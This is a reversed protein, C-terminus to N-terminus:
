PNILGDPLDVTIESQETDIDTIFEDAVPILLDGGGDAREVIFLVNATADDIGAIKGLVSGDPDLKMTFGVLDTAYLGDADDESDEADRAMVADRHAARMFIQRNVLLKADVESDIGDITLLFSDRGKRRIGEIFFPVYIGDIDVIACDTAGPDVGYDFTASIEGNVGHPKGFVGAPFIDSRRIM